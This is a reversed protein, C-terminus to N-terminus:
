PCDYTVQNRVYSNNVAGPPDTYTMRMDEPFGKSNYTYTFIETATKYTGAVDDYYRADIRLPNHPSIVSVLLWPDYVYWYFRHHMFKFYPHMNNYPSNKDDYTIKYDTSIVRPGTQREYTILTVNGKDDYYLLVKPELDAIVSSLNKRSDYSFVYKSKLPTSSGTSVFTLGQIGPVGGMLDGTFFNSSTALGNFNNTKNGDSFNFEYEQGTAQNAAKVRALTGKSDYEYVYSTASGFRTILESKLVCGAAPPPTPPPQTTGTKKCGNNVATFFMLLVCGQKISITM